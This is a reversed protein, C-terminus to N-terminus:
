AHLHCGGRIRVVVLVHLLALCRSALGGSAGINWTMNDSSWDGTIYPLFMLVRGPPDAAGGTVYSFWVAPRVGFINFLWVAIICGIGIAVPLSLHFNEADQTLTTDSFWEAQILTGAVYGNIALVGSWAFWYGFTALPGISRSTSAGPRTRTSRSAAPRRPFM